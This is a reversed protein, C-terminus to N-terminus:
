EGIDVEIESILGDPKRRYPYGLKDLVRWIADNDNLASGVLQRVGAARADDIALGLLWTGIGEGQMDDRISMAMEATNEDLRVYRAAGVPVDPLFTRQWFAMFGGQQESEMQAIKEAEEWVQKPNPNELSQQFRRYRSEASMHEFIDVLYPADYATLPRATIQKGTKTVMQMTKQHMMKREMFMNKRDGGHRVADFTCCVM